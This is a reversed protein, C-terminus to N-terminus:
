LRDCDIVLVLRSDQDTNGEVPGQALSDGALPEYQLSAGRGEDDQDLIAQEFLRSPFKSVGLM